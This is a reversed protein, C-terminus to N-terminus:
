KGGAASPPAVAAAPASLGVRQGDRMIIVRGMSVAAEAEAEKGPVPTVVFTSDGSAYIVVGTAELRAEITGNGSWKLFASFPVAGVFSQFDGSGSAHIVVRPEYGVPMPAPGPAVRVGQCSALSLLVVALIKM